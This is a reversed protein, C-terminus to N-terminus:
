PPLPRAIGAANANGRDIIFRKRVQQLRTGVGNENGRTKLGAAERLKISQTIAAHGDHRPDASQRIRNNVGIIRRKRGIGGRPNLKRRHRLFGQFM